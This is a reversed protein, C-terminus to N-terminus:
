GGVAEIALLDDLASWAASKDLDSPINVVVLLYDYGDCFGKRHRFREKVLRRLLNREVALRVYRKAVVVALRPYSLGNVLRYLKWYGRSVVLGSHRLERFRAVDKLRHRESFVAAM